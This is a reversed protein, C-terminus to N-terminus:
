LDTDKQPVRLMYGAGRVTHILSTAYGSDIKKRLLGIRVDVTNSYSDSDLWIREQITERSLVRGEQLALAELLDYERSSLGVEVGARRVRRTTTDIELDAIKIITTRNVKDRRLLARIRAVLETFDFPKPLYDDAGINLGHVRDQTTGRATLMLIPVQSRRSRLAECIQWGDLNPLMVDLIVLAYENELAMRLGAAGDGTSDVTFRERELGWTIVQVMAEEDEVVLIRM